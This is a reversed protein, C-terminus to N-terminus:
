KELKTQYVIMLLSITVSHWKNPKIQTVFLKRNNSCLYTRTNAWYKAAYCSFLFFRTLFLILKWCFFFLVLPGNGDNCVMFFYKNTREVFCLRFINIFILKSFLLDNAIITMKQFLIYHYQLIKACKTRHIEEKLKLGRMQCSTITKFM